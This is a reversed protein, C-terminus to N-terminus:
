ITGVLSVLFSGIKDIVDGGEYIEKSVGPNNNVECCIYGDKGFLLDVGCIDINLIQSIKSALEEAEPYKGTVVEGSGGNSLNAKVTEGNARRIMSFIPKKDVVIIRLDRGHSEKIYDQYLYPVQHELVGSMEEHITADHIRFVKSGRNGRVSKAILPYSIKEHLRTVPEGCSYSITTPIPVGHLALKQLHWVKNTCTMISDISNVIRAGLFELHRLLTIQFDVKLNGSHIRSYVIKPPVVPHNNLFISIKNSEIKLLLAKENVILYDHFNMKDFCRALKSSGDCDHKDSDTLIWLQKTSPDM